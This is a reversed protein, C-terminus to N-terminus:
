FPDPLDARPYQIGQPQTFVANPDEAPLKAAPAASSASPGGADTIGSSITGTWRMPLSTSSFM